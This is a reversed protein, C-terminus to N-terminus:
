VCRTGYNLVDGPAEILVGSVFSQSPAGDYSWKLTSGNSRNTYFWSSGTYQGHTVTFKHYATTQAEYGSNCSRSPTTFTAAHAVAPAAVIIGVLFISMCASTLTRNKM